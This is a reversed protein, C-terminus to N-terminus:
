NISVDIRQVKSYPLSEKMANVWIRIHNSEENTVVYDLTYVGNTEDISINDQMSLEIGDSATFHLTVDKYEAPLFYSIDISQTKNIQATVQREHELKLPATRAAMIHRQMLPHSQGFGHMQGMQGFAMQGHYDCAIASSAILSTIAVIATTILKNTLKM